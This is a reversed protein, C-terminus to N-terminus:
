RVFIVNAYDVGKLGAMLAPLADISNREFRGDRLLWYHTWLAAARSAFSEPSTGARNLGYPWVECMLPAGRTMTTVAGALVHGEHGQVDMWILSIDGLDKLLDDLRAAPVSITRRGAEGYLQQGGPAPAATRVRHDGFNSESLEFTVDGPESSAARQLCTYRETLRNQAVNRQLLAFNGPEPEIAIARAMEGHVLAGISIVGNNAGVDVLTGTGRPPLLRQERLFALTRTVLDLEYQGEVYLAKGIADDKLSVTLLGQRTRVTVDDRFRRLVQWSSARFEARLRNIM